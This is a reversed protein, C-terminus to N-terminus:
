GLRLSTNKIRIELCIEFGRYRPKYQGPKRVSTDELSFFDIIALIRTTYKNLYIQHQTLVQATM